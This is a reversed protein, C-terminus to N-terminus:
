RLSRKGRENIIEMIADETKTRLESESMVAGNIFHIIKDKDTLSTTSIYTGTRKGGEINVQFKITPM